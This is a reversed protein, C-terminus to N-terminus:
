EELYSSLFDAIIMPALLRKPATEVMAVTRSPPRVVKGPRVPRPEARVDIDRFKAAGSVSREKSHPFFASAQSGSNPLITIPRRNAADRTPEILYTSRNGGGPSVSKLRVVSSVKTSEADAVSDFFTVLSNVKKIEEPDTTSSLRDDLLYRLTKVNIDHSLNKDWLLDDLYQFEKESLQKSKLPTSEIADPKQVSNSSAARGMEEAQPSGKDTSFAPELVSSTNGGNQQSFESLKHYAQCTTRSGEPLKTEADYRHALDMYLEITASDLGSRDLKHVSIELAIAMVNALRPDYKEPFAAEIGAVDCAERWSQKVTEFLPRMREVDALRVIEAFDAQAAADRSVMEDITINKATTNRMREARTLDLLAKHHAVLSDNVLARPDLSDSIQIEMKVDKCSVPSGAKRLFNGKGDIAGPQFEVGSADRYVIRIQGPSISSDVKISSTRLVSELDASQKEPFCKLSESIADRFQPSSKIAGELLKKAQEVARASERDAGQNRKAEQYQRNFDAISLDTGNDLSGQKICFQKAYIGKTIRDMVSEALSQDILPAPRESRFAARKVGASQQNVVGVLEMWSVDRRAPDAIGDRIASLLHEMLIQENRTVPSGGKGFALKGITKNLDTQLEVPLGKIAEQMIDHTTGLNLTRQEKAYEANQVIKGKEDLLKGGADREYIVGKVLRDNGEAVLMERGVLGSRDETSSVAPPTASQRFHSGNEILYEQLARTVRAKLDLEMEIHRKANPINRREIEVLGEITASLVPSQGSTALKDSQLRAREGSVSSAFLELQALRQGPDGSDVLAPPRLRSLDFAQEGRLEIYKELWKALEGEKGEVIDGARRGPHDAEKVVFFEHLSYRQYFHKEKFRQTVDLPLWKGTKLNVLVFDMGAGDAVSQNGAPVLHWGMDALTKGGSMRQSLMVESLGKYLWREGRHGSIEGPLFPKSNNISAIRERSEAALDALNDLAEPALNKLHESFVTSDRGGALLNHFPQANVGTIKGGAVLCALKDLCATDRNKLHFALLASNRGTEPHITKALVSAQDVSLDHRKIVDILKDSTAQDIQSTLVDLKVSGGPDLLERLAAKEKEEVNVTIPQWNRTFGKSSLLVKSSMEAVKQSAAQPEQLSVKENESQKQSTGDGTITPLLPLSAGGDKAREGLVLGGERGTEASAFFTEESIESGSCDIPEQKELEEDDAPTVISCSPLIHPAISRRDSVRTSLISLVDIRHSIDDSNEPRELSDNFSSGNNTELQDFSDLM